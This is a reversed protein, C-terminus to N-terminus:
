VNCTELFVSNVVFVSLILVGLTIFPTFNTKKGDAVMPRYGFVQLIGASHFLGKIQPDATLDEATKGTKDRVSPDFGKFLLLRVIRGNNNKAALHLATHGNHDQRKRTVRLALLVGTSRYSNMLVALHIPTQFNSSSRTLEAGQSSLYSIIHPFDKEAAFHIANKSELNYGNVDAGHELLVKIIELSGSMSAFILASNGETNKENVWDQIEEYTSNESEKINIVHEIMENLIEFASYIATAHVLTSGVSDKFGALSGAQHISLRFGELDEREIFELLEEM